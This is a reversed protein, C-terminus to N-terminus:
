IFDDLKESPFLKITWPAHNTTVKCNHLVVTRPTGHLHDSPTMSAKSTPYSIPFTTLQILSEKWNVIDKVHLCTRQTTFQPKKSHFKSGFSHNLRSTYLIKM